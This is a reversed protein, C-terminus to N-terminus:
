AVVLPLYCGIAVFLLSCSLSVHCGQTGLGMSACDGGSPKSDQPDAESDLDFGLRCNTLWGSGFSDNAAVLKVDQHWWWLLQLM